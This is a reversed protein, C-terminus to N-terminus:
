PTAQQQLEAAQRYWRRYAWRWAPVVYLMCPAHGDGSALEFCQVDGRRLNWGPLRKAQEIALVADNRSNTRGTPKNTMAELM